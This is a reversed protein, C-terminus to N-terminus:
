ERNRQENIFAEALTLTHPELGMAMATELHSVVGPDTAARVVRHGIEGAVRAWGIVWEVAASRVTRSPHLATDLLLHYLEEYDGFDRMRVLYYLANVTQQDNGHRTVVFEWLWKYKDASARFGHPWSLPREGNLRELMEESTTAM